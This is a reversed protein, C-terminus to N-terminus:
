RAAERELIRKAANRGPLATVGGGPHCGAGCLYLGDVPTDYQAAGHVPRMMFSQHLTLEGHHWHGHLVGYEKEIDAPTLLERAVVLDGLGPCYGAIQEVLQDALAEKRGDWGGDLQYPVYAVNVSMVHHGAPALSADHRSPLVIELVPETSYEGYKSHNFAQEIARMSPAVVLRDNLATEDLGSFQPTGSLALHLKAVVGSGRVQQVRNAFMADLRPAGVLRGFTVRPDVNSVVLKSSITEGDALRVGGAVGTDVLIEEVRANLRIEAGANRATRELAPLLGADGNGLVRLGGGLEGHLRKLWTLVTGPARPGMASGLVADLAVAGKLREDEFSENLVDYINIGAVRLFEYMTDRGLGVRLKWGLKVLTKKDAFDMHKLRPPRNELLPKLAAAFERYQARFKPWAVIDERPLGDGAIDDGDISLHLGDLDLATTKLRPGSKYGAKALDLERCLERDAPYAAHALGPFRYEEALTREAAMGGASPAAELCLVDFGARALYAACVLGNHGAGIVIVDRPRTM